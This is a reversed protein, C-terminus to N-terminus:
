AARPYYLRLEVKNCLLMRSYHERAASEKLEDDYSTMQVTMTTLTKRRM